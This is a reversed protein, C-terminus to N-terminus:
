EIRAPDVYGIQAKRCGAAPMMAAFLGALMAMRKKNQKM